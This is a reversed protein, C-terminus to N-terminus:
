SRIAGASLHWWGTPTSKLSTSTKAEGKNLGAAPCNKSSMVGAYSFRRTLNAFRMGAPLATRLRTM